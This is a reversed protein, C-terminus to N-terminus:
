EKEQQKRALILWRKSGPQSDFDRPRPLDKGAQSSVYCLTVTDGKFQYIGRLKEHDRQNNLDFTKPEKSPDLQLKQRAEDLEAEPAFFAEETVFLHEHLHDPGPDDGDYVM